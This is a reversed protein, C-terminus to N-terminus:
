AALFKFSGTKEKFGYLSFGLELIARFLFDGSGLPFALFDFIVGAGSAEPLGFVVEAFFVVVVVM